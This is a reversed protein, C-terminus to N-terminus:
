EYKYIRVIEVTETIELSWSKLVQQKSQHIYSQQFYNCKKEKEISIKIWFNLVTLSFRAKFKCWLLIFMIMQLFSMFFIDYRSILSGWTDTHTTRVFVSTRWLKQICSIHNKKLSICFVTYLSFSYFAIRIQCVITSTFIISSRFWFIFQSYFHVNKFHFYTM